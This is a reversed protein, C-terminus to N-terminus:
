TWADPNFRQDHRPQLYTGRAEGPGGPHFHRVVYGNSLLMVTEDNHTWAELILTGAMGPLEIRGHPRPVTQFDALTSM